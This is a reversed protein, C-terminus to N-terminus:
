ATLAVPRYNSLYCPSANSTELLRTVRKDCILSVRGDASGITAILAILIAPSQLPLEQFLM